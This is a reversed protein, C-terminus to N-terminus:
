EPGATVATQSTNPPLSGLASALAMPGLRLCTRFPQASIQFTTRPFLISSSRPEYPRASQLDGDGKRALRHSIYQM